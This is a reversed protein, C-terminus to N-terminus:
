SLGHELFCDKYAKDADNIHNVIWDLMFKSIKQAFEREHGVYDQSFEKVKIRFEDHLKKHAEADSYGFKDFYKEETAFHYESYTALQNIIDGLVIGESGIEIADYLDNILVIFKKHQEDIEAIKVSYEPLWQAYM